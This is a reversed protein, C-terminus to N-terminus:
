PFMRVNIPSNFEIFFLTMILARHQKYNPCESTVPASYAKTLPLGYNLGM